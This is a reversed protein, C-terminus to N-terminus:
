SASSDRQGFVWRRLHYVLQELILESHARSFGIGRHCAGGMDHQIAGLVPAVRARTQAITQNVALRLFQRGEREQRPARFAIKPERETRELHTRLAASDDGAREVSM